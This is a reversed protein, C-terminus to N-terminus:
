FSVLRKKGPLNKPGLVSATRLKIVIGTDLSTKCVNM